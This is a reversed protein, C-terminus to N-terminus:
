KIRRLFGRPNFSLFFNEKSKDRVFNINERLFENVAEMPGPGFNPLVPHGNVNSDEVILYSGVSVFESYIKLEKLVHGRSHDSDLIVMVKRKNNILNKIENVTQTDTSSGIIYKIREHKPTERKLIDITIISGKGVLDCISALFLAGGGKHTGCEIIIDPKLDNIIEQYVWLDLPCKLCEIGLWHTNEWVKSDYYLKHFKNVISKHMVRNIGLNFIKSRIKSIKKM